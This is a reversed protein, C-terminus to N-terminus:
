QQFPPTFSVPPRPPIPVPGYHISAIASNFAHLGLRAEPTLYARLSESYKERVARICERFETGQNLNTQFKDLYIGANLYKTMVELGIAVGNCLNLIVSDACFERDAHDMMRLWREASQNTRKEIPLITQWKVDLYREEIQAELDLTKQDVLTHVEDAIDDQAATEIQTDQTATHKQDISPAAPIEEGRQTPLRIVEVEQSTTDDSITVTPVSSPLAVPVEPLVLKPESEAPAAATATSSRASSVKPQEQKRKRQEMITRHSTCYGDGHTDHHTRTCPLGSKENVWRCQVKEKPPAKVKPEPTPAAQPVNPAEVKEPPTTVVNLKIAPAASARPSSAKVDPLDKVDKSDAISM